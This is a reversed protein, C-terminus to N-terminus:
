DGLTKCVTHDSHGIFVCLPQYLVQVCLLFSSKVLTGYAYLSGLLLSPRGVMIRIGFVKHTNAGLFAVM